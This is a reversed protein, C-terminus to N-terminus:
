FSARLLSPSERSNSTLYREVARRLRRVGEIIVEPSSRSFNVRMATTLNGEFDFVSSPVFAVKEQVAYHYLENTNIAPIGEGTRARMWVFM